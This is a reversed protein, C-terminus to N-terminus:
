EFIGNAIDRPFLDSLAHESKDDVDDLDSDDSCRQSCSNSSESHSTLSLTMKKPRNEIATERDERENEEKEKESLRKQTAAVGVLMKDVAEVMEADVHNLLGTLPFNLTRAKSVTFMDAVYLELASSGGKYLKVMCSHSIYTGFHESVADVIGKRRADEELNFTQIYKHLTEARLLALDVINLRPYDVYREDIWWNDNSYRLVPPTSGKQGCHESFACTCQPLTPIEGSM